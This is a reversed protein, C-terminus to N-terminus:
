RTEERPKNKGVSTRKASSYHRWIELDFEAITKGSSDAMELFKRELELYKKGTPTSKPVDIGNERMYKLAHTDLGAFRADRRSHMLFCRATKPGIGRVSELDSVSCRKLDLGRRALDLMSRSKNNYCGIGNVRMYEALEPGFRRIIEFPEDTCFLDSGRSLMRDLNRAATSAKKGAACIWFLLLLQLEKDTCDYKTINNPDVLFNL